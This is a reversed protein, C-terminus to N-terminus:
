KKLLRIDAIKIFSMPFHGNTAIPEFRLGKLIDSRDLELLRLDFTYRHLNGDPLLPILIERVRSQNQTTFLIRSRRPKIEPPVRLQFSLHSYQKLDIFLPIKYKINPEANAKLWIGDKLNSSLPKAEHFDWFQTDTLNFIFDEKTLPPISPSLDTNLPKIPKKFPTSSLAHSNYTLEIYPYRFIGWDGTLNKRPNSTFKLTITKGRFRTLSIKFPYWKEDLLNVYSKEYLRKWNLDDQSVSVEFSIGDSSKDGISNKSITIASFLFANECEEPLTITWEVSNPSHLFLNLYHYDDFPVPTSGNDHVWSIEPVKDSENLRVNDLIFDGQLSWKQKLGSISLWHKRLTEGLMTMLSPNGVGWRFLSGECYTPAEWFHQLCSESSPSRSAIFYNRKDGGLNSSAIFYLSFAGVAIVWIKGILNIPGPIKSNQFINWFSYALGALGLWFFIFFYSYWSVINKRVLHIQWISLLGAIILLLNPLWKDTNQFIEKRFLFLIGIFALILGASGRNLTHPSLFDVAVPFGVAECWYKLNPFSFSIKKYFNNNPSIFSYFYPLSAILATSIFALYYSIGRYGLLVFAILFLPWAVLGSGASWSGLLGGILAFIVGKWTKKFKILGWIGFILGLRSLGFELSGFAFEFVTFQTLSFILWSIIPLLFWKLFSNSFHTFADFLLYVQIASILIGSFLMAHYNLHFFLGFLLQVLIPFFLYHGNHFVDLPFNKYNYTGDLIPGLINVIYPWEDNSPNGGGITTLIFLLRFIPYLALCISLVVLVIKTHRTSLFNYRKLLNLFTIM